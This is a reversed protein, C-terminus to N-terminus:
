MKLIKAAVLRLSSQVLPRHFSIFYRRRHVERIAWVTFFKGSICSVWTSLIRVLAVFGSYAEGPAWHYLIQRCLLFWLSCPHNSGQIPFIGQLVAHCGVGTNEGPSDGHVSSGPLTAMPNCLTWCLQFSKACGVCHRRHEQGTSIVGNQLLQQSWSTVNPKM